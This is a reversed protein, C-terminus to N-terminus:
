STGMPCMGGNVLVVRVYVYVYVLFFIFAVREGRSVRSLCGCVM